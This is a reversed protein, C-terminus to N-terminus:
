RKSTVRRFWALVGGATILAGIIPVAVMAFRPQAAIVLIGVLVLIAAGPPLWNAPRRLSPWAIWLAGFVLGCRGLMEPGFGSGYGSAYSAVYFALCTFCLFGVVTRRWSAQQGQAGVGTSTKDMGKGRKESGAPQSSDGSAAPELDEAASRELNESASRESRGRTENDDGDRSATSEKPVQKM